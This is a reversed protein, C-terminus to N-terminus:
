IFGPVYLVDLFRLRKDNEVIMNIQGIYTAEADAGNGVKVYQKTTQKNTLLTLDNTVHITAGSDLLWNSKKSENLLLQCEDMSQVMFIENQSTKEKVTEDKLSM